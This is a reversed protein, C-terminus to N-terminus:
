PPRIIAFAASAPYCHSAEMIPWGYNLGGASGALTVNVEEYQNQGVDPIWLDGTRRDFSYRWPNRLGVAWIEDRVDAGNWDADVWPNDAPVLYPQSPDCRSPSGPDDHAM